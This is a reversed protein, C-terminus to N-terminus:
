AIKFSEIKFEQCSVRTMITVTDDREIRYTGGIPIRTSTKERKYEHKILGTEADAYCVCRKRCDTYAKMM